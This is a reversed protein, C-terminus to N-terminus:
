NVDSKFPAFGLCGITASFAQSMDSGQRVSGFLSSLTTSVSLRAWKFGNKFPLDVIERSSLQVVIRLRFM